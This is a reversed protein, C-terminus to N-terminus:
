AKIRECIQTLAKLPGEAMGRLKGPKM